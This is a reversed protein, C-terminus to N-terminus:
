FLGPTRKTVTPGHAHDAHSSLFNHSTAVRVAMHSHPLCNCSQYSV